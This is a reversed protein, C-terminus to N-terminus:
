HVKTLFITEKLKKIFMGALIMTQFLSDGVIKEIAFALMSFKKYNIVYQM